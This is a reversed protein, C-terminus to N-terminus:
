RKEERKKITTRGIDVLELLMDDKMILLIGFYVAVGISVQLLIVYLLPLAIIKRLQMVIVLMVIGAIIRKYSCKWIIGINMFGDSMKVYFFTISLEAIVSAITAGVAGYQPILILNLLLNVCSGLIIFKASKARQGSPNYYQSGLCNSTGIILVIPAM